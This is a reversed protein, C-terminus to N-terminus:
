LIIERHPYVCILNTNGLKTKSPEHIHGHIFYSPQKEEIYTTFSAFGRHPDTLDMSFTLMPNSHAIFVDVKECSEMFDTTEEELYQLYTRRNYKPCGEFGAFTVGNIEVTQRHLNLINTNQFFDLGDHNGLVGIKQCTFQEDIKQLQYYDIDGLLIVLDPTAEPIPVYGHLDSLTLIRM